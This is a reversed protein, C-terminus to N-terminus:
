RIWQEITQNEIDIVVVPIRKLELLRQVYKRQFFSEFITTSIAVVVEHNPDIEALAFFYNDYQGMAEYFEHSFNQGLFSKIEVALKETNREIAIIREM